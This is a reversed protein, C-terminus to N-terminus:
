CLGQFTITPLNSEKQSPLKEAAINTKPLPM